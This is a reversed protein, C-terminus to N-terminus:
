KSFLDRVYRCGRTAYQVFFVTGLVLVMLIFLGILATGATDGLVWEFSSLYNILFHLMIAAHIGFRVFLYGLALGGVFTPAIKFVDWGDLHAYAFIAASILILVVATRDMECRGFLRKWSGKEKLMLGIVALPVGIMGIRCLVEEWVTANLFSYWDAWYPGASPPVTPTNGSAMLFINLIMNFSIDAAFLTAVAYLPIDDLKDTRKCLVDKMGNRSTYVLLVFSVTVAVVIFMYYLNAAAGSIELIVYPSPTLIFISLSYDGIVPMITGFGWFVTFIEFFLVATCTFLLILGFLRALATLGSEAPKQTEPLPVVGVPRGCFTCYAYGKGSCEACRECTETDSM